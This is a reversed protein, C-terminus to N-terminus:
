HRGSWDFHGRRCSSGELCGTYKKLSSPCLERQHSARGVHWLQAFFVAEKEHVASVIPKWAEVQEETYLGAACCCYNLDTIMCYVNGM